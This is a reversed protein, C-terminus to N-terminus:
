YIRLIINFYKTFEKENFTVWVGDDDKVKVLILDDEISEGIYMYEYQTAITFHCKKGCKLEKSFSERPKVEM